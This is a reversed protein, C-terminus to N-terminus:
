EVLVPAIAKIGFLDFVLDEDVHFQADGQSELIRSLLTGYGDFTGSLTVTATPAIFAGYFGATGTLKANPGSAYIILNHPDQTVNVVGGGLLTADGNIYLTTPGTIEIYAQGALKLSNFYFTGPPLTLYDNGALSLNYSQGQFPNRGQSTLPILTNDNEIAAWDYDIDFQPLGCGQERVVGTVEYATGATIFDYGQGYMANGRISISGKGIIDRCSCVDGNPYVNGPGYVGLSSRYSDTMVDGNFRVGEMGWIGACRGGGAVATASRRIDTFRHGMVQALYLPMEQRTGVVRIANPLVGGIGADPTPSFSRRLGDWNGITVSLDSPQVPQNNVPNLLGVEHASPRAASEWLGSAGALASADATRQMETIGLCILGVDVALAGFSILVILSVAVLPIISGRRRLSKACVM